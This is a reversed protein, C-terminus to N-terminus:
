KLRKMNICSDLKLTFSQIDKIDYYSTTTVVDSETKYLYPIGTSYNVLTVGKRKGNIYAEDGPSRREFVNSQIEITATDGDLSNLVNFNSIHVPHNTILTLDTVWTDNVTVKRVPIESFVMNLMDTIASASIQDPILGGLYKGTASDNEVDRILEDVGEVKEVQGSDNIAVHIPIAHASDSQYNVNFRRKWRFLNFAM